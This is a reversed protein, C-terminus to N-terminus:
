ADERQVIYGVDYFHQPEPTLSFPAIGRGEETKDKADKKAHAKQGVELADTGEEEV